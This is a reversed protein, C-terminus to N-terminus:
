DFKTNGVLWAVVDMRSEKEAILVKTGAGVIRNNTEKERWVCSNVDIVGVIRWIGRTLAIQKDFEVWSREEGIYAHHAFMEGKKVGFENGHLNAVRQPVSLVGSLDYRKSLEEPNTVLEYRLSREPM